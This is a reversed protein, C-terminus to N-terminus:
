DRGYFSSSGDTGEIYVGVGREHNESLYTDAAAEAGSLTSFKWGNIPKNDHYQWHLTYVAPKRQAKLKAELRRAEEAAKVHKNMLLGEQMSKLLPPMPFSKHGEKKRSSLLKRIFSVHAPERGTLSSVYSDIIIPNDQLYGSAGAQNAPNAEVVRYGDTTKVIDPAYLQGNRESEPLANIADVAAQAMAKTDDDEFVVPMPEMKLWTSHPVIEAKGNRTVIHVRGEQGKKFTIGQAREENTIGVVPFAPSAMFRGKSVATAAENPAARWASDAAARADGYLKEYKRSGFRFVEGDKHKVGVVRDHTLRKPLKNVNINSVDVDIPVLENDVKKWNGQHTDGITIGTRRNRWADPGEAAEYGGREWGKDAPEWDNDWLWDDVEQATPTEGGISNMSIIPKGDRTQGEFKYGLEPWLANLAAHRELFEQQTANQGSASKAIKNYRDNKEDYYVDQEQGGVNDGVRFLADDVTKGEGALAARFGDDGLKERVHEFGHKALEGGSAWMSNKADQQIQRIRQPFFIGYGAYAEDGYSKVIWKDEGYTADLKKIVDPTFEPVATGFEQGMLKGLDESNELGPLHQTEDLKDRLTQLQPFYDREDGREHLGEDDTSQSVTSIARKSGSPATGHILSIGARDLYKEIFNADGNGDLDHGGYQVEEGEGQVEEGLSELATDIGVAGIHNRLQGMWDAVKQNGRSRFLKEYRDLRKNVVEVKAPVPRATGEGTPKSGDPRGTDAASDVPREPTTEVSEGTEGASEAAPGSAPGRQEGNSDEPKETAPQEPLAEQKPTEDLVTEEPQPEPAKPEETPSTQAAPEEKPKEEKPKEIKPAAPKNPSWRPRNTLLSDISPPKLSNRKPLEDPKKGITSAPGKRIRGEGDLEVHTGGCHEGEEGEACAQGGMTVWRKANQAPLSKDNFPSPPVKPPQTAPQETDGDEGENPDFGLMAVLAVHEADSLTDDDATDEEVHARWDPLPKEADGFYVDADEMGPLRPMLCRGEALPCALWVLGGPQHINADTGWNLLSHLALSCRRNQGKSSNVM